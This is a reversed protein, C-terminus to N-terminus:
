YYYVYYYVYYYNRNGACAAGTGRGSEAAVPASRMIMVVIIM